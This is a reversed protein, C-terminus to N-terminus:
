NSTQIQRLRDIVGRSEFKNPDIVIRTGGGVDSEAKPAYVRKYIATLEEYMKKGRGNDQEAVRIFEYMSKPLKTYLAFSQAM